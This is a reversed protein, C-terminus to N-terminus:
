ARVAAWANAILEEAMDSLPESLICKIRLEAARLIVGTYAIASVVPTGPHLEGTEVGETVFERLMQFPRSFCIPALGPLFEGHRMFLLYEMLAPDRETTELVVEAFARLRDRCSVREALRQHFLIMFQVLAEEHIQRALAEKTPFYSYIAGISVGSAKVIDPISVNHYGCRVFLSRAERMVRAKKEEPTSTRRTTRAGGTQSDTPM